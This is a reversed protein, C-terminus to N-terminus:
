ATLIGAIYDLPKELGTKSKASIEFYSGSQVKRGEVIDCKNGVNVIPLDPNVARIEDCWWQVNGYSIRSNVDFMVIAADADEYHPDRMGSFKHQGATDWVNFVVGNYPGSLVIPHVEEGVTATYPMKFDGGLLRRIYTTKGVGGDGVLAIKFASTM